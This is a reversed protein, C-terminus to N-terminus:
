LKQAILPTLELKAVTEYSPGKSSLTSKILEIEGVKWTESVTIAQYSAFQGRSRAITLHPTFRRDEVFRGLNRLLTDGLAQLGDGSAPTFLVRARRRGPFADTGSLMLDFPLFSGAVHRGIDIVEELCEAPLTGMFALTLHLQDQRTPRWDRSLLLQATMLRERIGVPAVIAYFLRLSANDSTKM